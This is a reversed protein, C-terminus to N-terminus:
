KATQDAKLALADQPRSPDFPMLLLGENSNMSSSGGMRYLIFTDFDADKLGSSRLQRVITQQETTGPGYIKSIEWDSVWLADELSLAPQHNPASFLLVGAVISLGTLFFATGGIKMWKAPTWHAIM